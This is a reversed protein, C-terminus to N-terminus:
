LNVSKHNMLQFSHALSDYFHGNQIFRYLIRRAVNTRFAFLASSLLQRSTEKNFAKTKRIFIINDQLKRFTKIKKSANMSKIRQYISRIEGWAFKLTKRRSKDRIKRTVKKWRLSSFTIKHLKRFVRMLAPSSSIYTGDFMKAIPSRMISDTDPSSNKDIWVAQDKDSLQEVQFTRVRDAVHSTSVSTSLFFTGHIEHASLSSTSPVSLSKQLEFRNNVVVGGGKEKRGFQKMSLKAGKTAYILHYKGAKYMQNEAFKPLCRCSNINVLKIYKIRDTSEPSNNLRQSLRLDLLSFFYRKCKQWWQLRKMVRLMKVYSVALQVDHASVLSVNAFANKRYSSLAVNRGREQHLKPVPLLLKQKKALASLVYKNYQSEPDGAIRQLSNVTCFKKLKSLAIHKKMLEM